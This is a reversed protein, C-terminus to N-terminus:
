EQNIQVNIMSSQFAAWLFEVAIRLDSLLNKNGSKVLYPTLLIAQFCLQGVEWPVAQASLLAMKKLQQPSKKSKVVRLYAEADLDVLTLLRKRIRESTKLIKKIRQDVKQSSNKGLSFNAAMSILSVGLSAVLAAASGGGPVPTKMGLVRTYNDLTYYRYKKM